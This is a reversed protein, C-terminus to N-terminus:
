WQAARSSCSPPPPQPLCSSPPTKQTSNASSSSFVPLPPLTLAAQRNGFSNQSRRRRHTCGPPHDLTLTIPLFTSLSILTLITAFDVFNECITLQNSINSSETSDNQLCRFPGSAPGCKEHLVTSNLTVVRFFLPSYLDISRHRFQRRPYLALNSFIQYILRVRPAIRVSKQSRIFM